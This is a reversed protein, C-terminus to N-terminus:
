FIKHFPQFLKGLSKTLRIMNEICIHKAQEDKKQNILFLIQEKFEDVLEVLSKFSSFIKVIIDYPETYTLSSDQLSNKWINLGFLSEFNQEEKAFTEKIMQPTMENLIYFKAKALALSKTKEDKTSDIQDFLDLLPTSELSPM